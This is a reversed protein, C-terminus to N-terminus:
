QGPKHLIDLPRHTGIDHANRRVTVLAVFAAAVCAVHVEKHRSGNVVKVEGGEKVLPQHIHFVRLFRASPKWVVSRVIAGPRPGIYTPRIGPNETYISHEPFIPIGGDYLAVIIGHRFRHIVEDAGDIRISGTATFVLSGVLFPPDAQGIMGFCRTAVLHGNEGRSGGVKRMVSIYHGPHGLCDPFTVIRGFVTGEAFSCFLGKCLVEDIRIAAHM